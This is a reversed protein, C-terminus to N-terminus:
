DTGRQGYAKLLAVAEVIVAAWAGMQLAIAVSFLIDSM